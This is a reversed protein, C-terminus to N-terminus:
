SDKDDEDENIPRNGLGNTPPEIGEPAIELLEVDVSSKLLHSEVPIASKPGFLTFHGRPRGAAAADYLARLVNLDAKDPIDYRDATKINLWGVSLRAVKPPVGLRVLNR